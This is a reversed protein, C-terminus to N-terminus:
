RLNVKEFPPQGPLEKGDKTSKGLKIFANLM